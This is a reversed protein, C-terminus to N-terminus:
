NEAQKEAEQLTAEVSKREKDVETLQTNLEQIRKESLTFADMTAISWGEEEKM